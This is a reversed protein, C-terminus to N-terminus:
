KKILLTFIGLLFLIVKPNLINCFFGEQFAKLNSKKEFTNEVGRLSAKAFIMQFGLYSLYLSGVIKFYFYFNNFNTLFTILGFNIYLIHIFLACIIGLSTYIGLKKSGTLSNKIVLMSDPGPSMAGLLQVVALSIFVSM